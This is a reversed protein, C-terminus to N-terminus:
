VVNATAEKVLRKKATDRAVGWRKAWDKICLTEDGITFLRTSRRNKAQESSTAWRCNEPSYGLNNDIRDLSTGSPRKGMDRAFVKVSHWEDCVTIGRGGYGPFSDAQPDYCRRMMNQWANYTPEWAGVSLGHTKARLGIAVAGFCGCSKIAGQLLASNKMTAINGCECRVISTSRHWCGGPMASPRGVGLVTLKHIVTGPPIAKVPRAM